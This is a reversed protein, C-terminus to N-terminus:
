FSMRDDGSEPLGTVIVNSKRRTADKLSKVVVDRIIDRHNAKIAEIAEANSQETVDNVLDM